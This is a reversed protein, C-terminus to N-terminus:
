DTEEDLSEDARAAVAKLLVTAYAGRPLQFELTVKTQGPHLEDPEATSAQDVPLFVSSRLGKSFFSDRPYKVRMERLAVGFEGLVEDIVTRLPDDPELHLRASPLPLALAQWPAPDCAGGPRFFPLPEGDIELETVRDLDCADRVSRALLRNWLHSQFAALFLRRLHVDIRAFARRFDTPHQMLFQAIRRHDTDALQDHCESWAGWHDRWVTKDSRQTPRDHRNPDALALWLAGEFDGQCWPRAIFDGSRGRSGFRQRDFYNPVGEAAIETLAGAMRGAVPPPVDRVVLRFRNGAIDEPGFARPVQGKYTLSLHSQRLDRHPGHEITLWQSTTAYRDKLGGFSITPEPIRWRRAVAQVAELTGLAEKRLEYLAFPGASASFDTLERVCFDGTQCKIKM